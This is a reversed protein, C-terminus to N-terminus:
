GAPSGRRARPVLAPSASIAATASNWRSADSTERTDEGWLHDADRFTVNDDDVWLYSPKSSKGTFIIGQHGAHKLYAGWFGHTHGVAASYLTCHHFSVITVDSSNVAPTGTLPENMFILPVDPDAARGMRPGERLLYLLGLGIGGVYKRLDEEPPLAERPVSKQSLDIRLIHPWCGGRVTM